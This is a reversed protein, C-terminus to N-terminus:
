DIDFITTRWVILQIWEAPEIIKLCNLQIRMRAQSTIAMGYEESKKGLCFCSQELNDFVGKGWFPRQKSM